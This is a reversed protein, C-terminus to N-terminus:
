NKKFLKIKKKLQKRVQASERREMKSKIEKLQENKHGNKLLFIM